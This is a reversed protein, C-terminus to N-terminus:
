AALRDVASGSWVTRSILGVGDDDRWTDAGAVVPVVLIPAAARRLTRRLTSGFVVRDLWSRHAVGIVIVDPDTRGAVELIARDAPGTAVETDVEHLGLRAAKRRLRGAVAELQEPLSRALQWAKSGSFVMDGPVDELAHVLTIRAGHRRSLDAATRLAVASAVSSEVPVLIRRLGHEDRDPMGRKPLGSAGTQVVLTPVSSRRIVREVISSRRGWGRRAEGGMVILDVARASAHLEIIEAPDGQQEVTHLRVGAQEARARMDAMRRLRDTARSSFRQDAPVAHLLYLEAGSSRALGLAREFAAERGNLSDVAVLIRSLEM